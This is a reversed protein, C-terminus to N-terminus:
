ASKTIALLPAPDNMEVKCAKEYKDLQKIVSLPTADKPDFDELDTPSLPLSVRGTKYHMSFPARVDGMPKLVSWDVLIQSAREEKHAVVSTTMPQGKAIIGSFKRHIATSNKQLREELRTQLNVAMDRYKRFVDGEGRLLKNDFSTWIQFGRSGSFKVMCGIGLDKLLTALESTVYKVFEFAKPHQLIRSGADLDLVFIDPEKAGIKHVYPIFDVCHDFVLELLREKSDITLYVPKPKYKSYRVFIADLEGIPDSKGSFIKVASVPRDVLFPMMVDAVHPYYKKAFWVTVYSRNLEGKKERILNEALKEIEQTGEYGEKKKLVYGESALKTLAGEIEERSVERNEAFAVDRAVKEHTHEFDVVKGREKIALLLVVRDYITAM